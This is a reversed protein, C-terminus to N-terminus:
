SQKKESKKHKAAIETSKQVSDKPVESGNESVTQGDESGGKNLKAGKAQKKKRVTEDPLSKNQGTDKSECIDGDESNSAQMLVSYSQKLSINELQEDEDADIIDADFNQIECPQSISLKTKSM